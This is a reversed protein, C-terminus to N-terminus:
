IRSRLLGIVIRANFLLYTIGYRGVAAHSADQYPGLKESCIKLKELTYRKQAKGLRQVSGVSLWYNDIPNEQTLSM